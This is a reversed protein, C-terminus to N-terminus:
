FAFKRFLCGFLVVGSSLKRIQEVSKEFQVEDFICEIKIDILLFLVVM